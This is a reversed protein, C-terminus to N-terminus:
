GKEFNVAVTISIKIPIDVPKGNNLKTQQVIPMPKTPQEEKKVNDKKGVTLGGKDEIYAKFGGRYSGKIRNYTSVFERLWEVLKNTSTNLDEDPKNHALIYVKAGLREVKLYDSINVGYKIWASIRTNHYAITNRSKNLVKALDEAGFKKGINSLLTYIIDEQTKGKLGGM